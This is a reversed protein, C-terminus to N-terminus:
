CNAMGALATTDPSAKAWSETKRTAARVAGVQAELYRLGQLEKNYEDIKASRTAVLDIYSDFDSQLERAVAFQKYFDDTIDRIQKRTAMLRFGDAGDTSFFGDRAQKLSKMDKVDGSIAHASGVLYKM